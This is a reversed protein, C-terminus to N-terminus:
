KAVGATVLIVASTFTGAIVVRKWAETAAVTSAQVVGVATLAGSTIGSIAAYADGAGDDTSEEVTITINTGNFAVVRFTVTYTDTTVTTAGTNQGTLNEAGTTTKSGLIKGRYMRGMGVADFNLLVLGGVAASRPQETVTVVGEYAVDGEALGEHTQMIYHDAASGLIGHILEDILLADGDFLGLQSWSHDNNGLIRSPGVTSFGNALIQEQDVRLDVGTLVGSLDVQDLYQRVNKAPQKGM